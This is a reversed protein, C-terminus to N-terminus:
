AQGKPAAMRARAQTPTELPRVWQGGVNTHPKTSGAPTIGMARHLEAAQETPLLQVADAQGEGQTPARETEAVLSKASRTVAPKATAAIKRAMEIPTAPDIVMARLTADLTPHDKSLTEREVLLVAAERVTERETLEQVRAALELVAPDSSASVAAAPKRLPARMMAPPAKAAAPPPAPPEKKDDAAPPPPPPAKADTPPADGAGADGEPAAEGGAAETIMKELIALASDGDGGKIAAIAAGVSKADLAMNRSAKMERVANPSGSMSAIMSRVVMAQQPTGKAKILAASFAWVMQEEAAIDAPSSGALPAALLHSLEHIVIEEVPPPAADTPPPTNPDRIQLRATKNDVLRNCLGWVPENKPNVLDPVYSATIRWDQVRLEKQWYDVLPQLDPRDM